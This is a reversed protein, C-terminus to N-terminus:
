VRLRAQLKPARFIRAFATAGPQIFVSMVVAAEELEDDMVGSPRLPLGSSTALAM